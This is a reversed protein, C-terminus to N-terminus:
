IQEKLSQKQCAPSISFVTQVHGFTSSRQHGKMAPRSQTMQYSLDAPCHEHAPSKRGGCTTIYAVTFSFLSLKSTELQRIVPFWKSIPQPNNKKVTQLKFIWSYM